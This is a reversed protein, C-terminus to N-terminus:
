ERTLDDDKTFCCSKENKWFLENKNSVVNKLQIAKVGIFLFVHIEYKFIKNTYICSEMDESHFPDSNSNFSM